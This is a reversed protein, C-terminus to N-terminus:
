SCSFCSEKFRLLIRFNQRQNEKDLVNVGDNCKKVRMCNKILKEILEKKVYKDKKNDKDVKTIQYESRVYQKKQEKALEDTGFKSKLEDKIHQKINKIGLNDQVDKMTVGGGFFFDKNKVTIAHAGNEM